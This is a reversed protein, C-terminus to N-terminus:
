VMTLGLKNDAGSVSQRRLVVPRVVAYCTPMRRRCANKNRVVVRLDTCFDEWDYSGVRSLTQQLTRECDCERRITQGAAFLGVDIM